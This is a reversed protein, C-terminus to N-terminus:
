QNTNLEVLRLIDVKHKDAYLYPSVFILYKNVRLAWWCRQFSEKFISLIGNIRKMRIIVSLQNRAYLM